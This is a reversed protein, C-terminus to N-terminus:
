VVEVPNNLKLGDIVFMARIASLVEDNDKTIKAIANNYKAVRRKSTKDMPASPMGKITYSFVNDKWNNLTYLEVSDNVIVCDDQEEIPYPIGDLTNLLTQIPNIYSM